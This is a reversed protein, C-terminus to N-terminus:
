FILNLINKRKITLIAMERKFIKSKRLCFKIELINWFKDAEEENWGYIILKKGNKPFIHEIEGKVVSYNKNNINWEWKQNKDYILIYIVLLYRIYKPLAKICFDTFYELKPMALEPINVSPM